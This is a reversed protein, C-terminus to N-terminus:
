FGAVSWGFAGTLGGLVGDSLRGMRGEARTSSRLDLAWLSCRGTLGLSTGLKEDTRLSGWSRVGVTGVGSCVLNEATCDLSGCVGLRGTM